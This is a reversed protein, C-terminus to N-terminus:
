TALLRQFFSRYQQLALRLEETEPEGGRQWQEELQGKHLSFRQALAQMLEAVLSDGDRVAGQPDDVFRAQVDRWRGLFADADAPDLLPADASRATAAQAQVQPPPPMDARQAGQVGDTADHGGAPRVLDDDTGPATGHQLDDAHQAGSGPAPPPLEDRPPLDAPPPMEDRPPAAGPRLGTGPPADVTAPMGATPMGSAPLDAPQPSGQQGQQVEPGPQRHQEVQQVGPEQVESQQVESQQVGAPSTRTAGTPVIVLDDTSPRSQSM